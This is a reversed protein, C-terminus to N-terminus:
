RHSSHYQNHSPFTSLNHTHSLSLSPVTVPPVTEITAPDSCIGCNVHTHRLGEPTHNCAPGNTKLQSRTPAEEGLTNERTTPVLGQQTCQQINKIRRELRTLLGCISKRLINVSSVSTHSLTKAFKSCIQSVKSCFTHSPATQQEYQGSRLRSGSADSYDLSTCRSVCSASVHWTRTKNDETSMEATSERISWRPM